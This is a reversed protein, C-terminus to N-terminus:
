RYSVSDIFRSQFATAPDFQSEIWDIEKLQDALTTWRELTMTGLKESPMNNPLCLPEIAKVGYALSRLDMEPNVKHIYKWKGRRMFRLVNTGFM